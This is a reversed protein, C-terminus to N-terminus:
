DTSASPAKKMAWRATIVVAIMWGIIWFLAYFERGDVIAYLVIWAVPNPDNFQLVVSLAFLAGMTGHALRLALTM